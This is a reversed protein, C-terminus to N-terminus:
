LLGEARFAAKLEEKRESHLPEPAPILRAPDTAVADLISEALEGRREWVDELWDWVFSEFVSKPTNDGDTWKCANMARAAREMLGFEDGDITVTLARNSDTIRISM